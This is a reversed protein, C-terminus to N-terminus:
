RDGGVSGCEAAGLARSPGVAPGGTVALHVRGEGVRLLAYRDWQVEAVAGMRQVWFALARDLNAVALLPDVSASSDPFRAADIVAM